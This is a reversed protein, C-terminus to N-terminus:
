QQATEPEGKLTALRREQGRERIAKKIQSYVGQTKVGYKAAIELGSYGAEKMDLMDRRRQRAAQERQGKNPKEM